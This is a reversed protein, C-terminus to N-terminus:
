PRGLTKVHPVPKPEQQISLLYAVLDYEHGEGFHFVPMKRVSLARADHLDAALWEPPYDALVTRFRPAAPNPSDGTREIAHCEACLDNAVQHGVAPDGMQWAATPQTTCALLVLPSLIAAAFRM